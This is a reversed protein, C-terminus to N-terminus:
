IGTTSMDTDNTLAELGIRTAVESKILIRRHLQAYPQKKCQTSKLCSLDINAFGCKSLVLPFPDALSLDKPSPKTKDLIDPISVTKGSGLYSLLSFIKRVQNHLFSKAKIRMMYIQEGTHEDTKQYIFEIKDVTRISDEAMSIGAPLTQKKELRKTKSSEKEKKSLRGFWHTGVLQAAGEEMASINLLGKVFYYEYERWICSFRASFSDDVFLWGLMRINEPLHRNLILDYPYGKEKTEEDEEEENVTCKLFLSIYQAAASVGADTRGCKYYKSNGICDLIDRSIIYDSITRNSKEPIEILNSKALAEFLHYEVTPLGAQYAFGHYREGNYSLKLLVNKYKIGM